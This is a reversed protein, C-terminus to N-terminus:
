NQSSLDFEKIRNEKIDHILKELAGILKQRDYNKTNIKFDIKVAKDETMFKFKFLNKSPSHKSPEEASEEKRQEKIKERSFPEEQYRDLVEAMRDIEELKTLELLFTKSQINLDMCRQAIEAPLDTIRILETVTVRSKGIKQSIEQHTYGYIESLTKLSYAAEFITLDKRQVNEVISIELAENDPIDYEISPIEKLEALQAARFRREGAIIEFKGDKPRVIIPEIIGKERISDSLEQLDGFDKRPQLVNPIIKEVPINRIITTKTRIAIEDVLHNDHKLKISSPLGKKGKAM